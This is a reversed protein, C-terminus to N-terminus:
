EKELFVTVRKLKKSKESYTYVVDKVRFLKSENKKVFVLKEGIKPFIRQKVLDTFVPESKGEETISYRFQVKVNAM